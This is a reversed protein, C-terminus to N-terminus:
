VHKGCCLISLFTFMRNHNNAQRNTLVQLGSPRSQNLHSHPHPRPRFQVRHQQHKKNTNNNNKVQNPIGNTSFDNQNNPGM